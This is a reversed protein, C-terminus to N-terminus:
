MRAYAANAPKTAAAVAMMGSRMPDTAQTIRRAIM